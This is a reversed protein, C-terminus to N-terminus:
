IVITDLFSDEHVITMDHENDDIIKLVNDIKRVTEKFEDKSDFVFHVMGFNQSFNGTAAINSGVSKTQIVTVVNSMNRVEEVGIVKSIIGSNVYIPYIAYYRKGVNETKILSPWDKIKSEGTLAYYMDGYVQNIGYFYNVPYVTVSGGYRYGAENFYYEDGDHFVEIWVTGESIDMEKFMKALKADFRERFEKTFRSEFIVMGVVFSGDDTYKIPYKDELGSFVMEGNTFTYLVVVGKNKVFKEIMVDGSVSNKEALKYGIKLEEVNSCISFGSSGCSDVPKTIVPFSISDANIDIEDYTLEYRPAVPIDFEIFKEKLNAKNQIFDWQKKSCYCPMNLDQLYECAAGIVQESGGMYVGDINKSLILAKMAEKNTSDVEYGEKAIEFIGSSTDNGTAILKVGTYEAFDELANKWSSGGLLLLRKGRISMRVEENEKYNNM